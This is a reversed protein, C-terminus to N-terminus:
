ESHIAVQIYAILPEESTISGIKVLIEIAKKEMVLMIFAMQLSMYWYFSSAFTLTLHLRLKGRIILLEKVKLIKEIIFKSM